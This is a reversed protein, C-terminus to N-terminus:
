ENEEEDLYGIIKRAETVSVGFLDAFEEEFIEAFEWGM